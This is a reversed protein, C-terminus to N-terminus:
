AQISTSPTNENYLDEKNKVRRLADAALRDICQQLRSRMNEIDINYYEASECILKFVKHINRFDVINM